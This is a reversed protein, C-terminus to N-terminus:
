PRFLANLQYMTVWIQVKPYFRIFNLKELLDLKAFQKSLM